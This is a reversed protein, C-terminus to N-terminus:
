EIFDDADPVNIFSLIGGRMNYVNTFELNLMLDLANDTATGSRHGSRCYILYTKNRDLAEIEDTFFQSYFDINIANSIHYENFEDKTRIDIIVLNKESQKELIMGQFVKATINHKDNLM